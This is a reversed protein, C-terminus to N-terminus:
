KKRKKLDNKHLKQISSNLGGEVYNDFSISGFYDQNKNYLKKFDEYEAKLFRRNSFNRATYESLRIIEDLSELKEMDRKNLNDTLSLRKYEDIQEPTPRIEHGRAKYIKEDLLAERITYHNEPPYTRKAPNYNKLIDVCYDYTPKQSPLWDKYKVFYYGKEGYYEMVAATKDPNKYFSAMAMTEAFDESIKKDGYWSAGKEKMGHEKQYITRKNRIQVFEDSYSLGYFNVGRPVGGRKQIIEASEKKMFSFDICHGMEHYMTQQPNGRENIKQKFSIPCLNVRNSQKRDGEYPYSPHTWGLTGKLKKSEIKTIAVSNTCAKSLSPAEDYFRLIQKLDYEKTGKNKWDLLNKGGRGNIFYDDFYIETNNKTDEFIIAEIKGTAKNIQPRYKLEFFDACEEPSSLKAYVKQDEKSTLFITKRPQIKTGNINKIMNVAAQKKNKFKNLIKVLLGTDNTKNFDMLIQKEEPNLSFVQARATGEQPNKFKKFIDEATWEEQNLLDAETFEVLGPAKKGWPILYPLIVCRCNIWEKISGSKDGPYLLGNSFRTETSTIHGHLDVHSPRVRNDEATVWQKYSIKDNQIQQYNATNRSSNIETVAIRYADARKLQSFKAQLKKIVDERGLGENYADSLVNNIEKNLRKKTYETSLKTNDKILQEVRPNTKHFELYEKNKTAIKDDKKQIAQNFSYETLLKGYTLGLIAAKINYRQLLKEYLDMEKNILIPVKM